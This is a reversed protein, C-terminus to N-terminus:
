AQVFNLGGDPKHNASHFLDCQSAADSTLKPTPALYRLIHRLCDHFDCFLVTKLGGM